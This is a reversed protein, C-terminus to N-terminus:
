SIAPPNGQRMTQQIARLIDRNLTKRCRANRASIEDTGQRVDDSGSVM